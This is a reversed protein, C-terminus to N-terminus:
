RSVLFAVTAGLSAAFSVLVTGTVLGFLAGAALTMIAAGPLSLGTVVVYLLFFGGAVLWPSQQRWAAFTAQGEKLAALTLYQDLDFVFFAVIAVAIIAFLALRKM